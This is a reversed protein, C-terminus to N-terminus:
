KEFFHKPLTSLIGAPVELNGKGKFLSIEPKVSGHYDSGGTPFLEYKKAMALYLDSDNEKNKSYYVELGDLGMDKLEIVMTQLQQNNLKKYLVPHALVAAGGSAHILDVVENLKPEKRPANCPKGNGIYMDFAEDISSVYQMNLMHRAIAPRGISEGEKKPKIDDMSIQFGHANLKEIIRENRSDRDKRYRALASLLEQNSPDIGYGLIHITENLYHSSIEIGGLAYIQNPYKEAEALFEDVGSVTDHDTLAVYAPGPHNIQYERIDHIIEGPTRTGDSATSHIHLDISIHM